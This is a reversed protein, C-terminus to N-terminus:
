ERTTEPWLADAVDEWNDDTMVQLHDPQLSDLDATVPAVNTVNTVNTVGNTRRRTVRAHPETIGSFDGEDSQVYLQGTSVDGASSVDGEDSAVVGPAGNRAIGRRIRVGKTGRRSTVGREELLGGFKIKGVADPAAFAEYDGFLDAFVDWAAPHLVCRAEIWEGLLDSETRYQRTAASVSEPEGLGNAQYDGWGTLAWNLIGPLEAELEARLEADARREDEPITVTFPVLRIRSWIGEDTGEIDPRHNTALFPTFAPTFTFPAGHKHAATQPDGGTLAKVLGEDLKHGSGTEVITVVRAGALPALFFGQPDDRKTTLLETQAHGAYDGHLTRLIHLLTGKGNRGTGYLIPLIHELIEGCLSLGFLRQMFSVWDSDSGSIRDLFRLWSPCEANPEYTTGAVKTNRDAMNHPRPDHTRLDITVNRLNLLYGDVDLDDPRVPLMPKSTELAAIIFKRSQSLLAFKSWEGANSQAPAEEYMRDAMDHAMMEVSRADDPRYRTGDWYYWRKFTECWLARGATTDRLRQANGLDTRLHEFFGPADPRSTSTREGYGAASLAKAAAAFDGGHKLVACVAFKNYSQETDFPSSTTFVKMLDAGGYNTTASISQGDKGPRRWYAEEGRNYAFQWGNPELVEAWSVRSNFDDGPRTGRAQRSQRRREARPPVAERKPMQDFTRALTHLADREEPTLTAITDVGGRRLIYPKGSPHVKGSSPAEVIYGGTGRTEILTKVNDADHEREHPENPRRALKLNAAIEPCRYPWHFGGGPSESLYGAEVREVVEGLGWEVARQKYADYTIPCDFELVELAGAENGSGGGTLWGIGARGQRYEREVNDRLRRNEQWETWASLAPSKSGDEHAPVVNLGADFHALALDVPVFPPTITM